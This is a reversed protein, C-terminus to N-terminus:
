PTFARAIVPLYVLRAMSATAARTVPVVGGEIVVVNTQPQLFALTLAPTLAYGIFISEGRSISGSWQIHTGDFTPAPGFSATLSDTILTLSVPLTDTVTIHGDLDGTNSLVVTYSVAQGPLFYRPAIKHSTELVAAPAALVTTFADGWEDGAYGELNGQADRARSRFFYTHGHGGTFTASVQPTATIWPTWVGEHSDKVQVDYAAIGSYFDRGSWLVGFAPPSVPALADVSSV